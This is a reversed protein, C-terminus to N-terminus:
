GAYIVDFVREDGATAGRLNETFEPMTNKGAIEVLIEDMHVPKTEAASTPIKKPSATSRSRPTTAM